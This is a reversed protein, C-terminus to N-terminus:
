PQPECTSKSQDWRDRPVRFPHPVRDRKECVARSIPCGTFRYGVTKSDLYNLAVPSTIDVVGVCNCESMLPMSNASRPLFRISHAFWDIFTKCIMRLSNM